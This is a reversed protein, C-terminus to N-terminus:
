TCADKFLLQECGRRNLLSLVHIRYHRVNKSAPQERRGKINQLNRTRINCRSAGGQSRTKNLYRDKPFHRRTTLKTHLSWPCYKSGSTYLRLRRKSVFRTFQVTLIAKISTTLRAQCQDRPTLRM